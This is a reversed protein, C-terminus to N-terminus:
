QKAAPNDAAASAIPGAISEMKSDQKSNLQLFLISPDTLGREKVRVHGGCGEGDREGGGRSIRGVREGETIWV